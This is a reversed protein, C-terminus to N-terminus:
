LWGPPSRLLAGAGVPLALRLRVPRLLVSVAAQQVPLCRRNVCQLLPQIESNRSASMVMVHADNKKASVETRRVMRGLLALFM